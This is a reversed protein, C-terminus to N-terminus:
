DSTRASDVSVSISITSRQDRRAAEGHPGRDRRNQEQELQDEEIARLIRDLLRKVTGETVGGDQDVTISASASNIHVSLGAETMGRHVLGVGRGLGLGVCRFARSPGSALSGVPLRGAGPDSRPEAGRGVSGCSSRGDPRRM